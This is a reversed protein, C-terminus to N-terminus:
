KVGFPWFRAVWALAAIGGSLFAANRVTDKLEDRTKEGMVRVESVDLECTTLRTRTERLEAIALQVDGSLRRIESKSEQRFDGLSREVREVLRQLEGSSVNENM